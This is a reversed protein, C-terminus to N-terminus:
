SQARGKRHMDRLVHLPLPQQIKEAEIQDSESYKRNNILLFDPSLAFVNDTEYVCESTAPRQKWHKEECEVLHRLRIKEIPRRIWYRSQGDDNTQYYDSKERWDPNYQSRRKRRNFLQRRNM